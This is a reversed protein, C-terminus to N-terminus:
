EGVERDMAAIASPPLVALALAMGAVINDGSRLRIEGDDRARRLNWYFRNAVAAAHDLHGFMPDPV